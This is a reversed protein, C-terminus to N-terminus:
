IAYVYDKDDIVFGVLHIRKDIDLYLKVNNCWLGNNYELDLIENVKFYDIVCKDFPNLGNSKNTEFFRSKIFKVISKEVKMFQARGWNIVFFKTEM